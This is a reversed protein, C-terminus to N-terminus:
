KAMDVHHPRDSIMIAPEKFPETELALGSYPNHCCRLLSQGRRKLGRYPDLDTILTKVNYVDKRQWVWAM